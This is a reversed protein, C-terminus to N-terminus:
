SASFIQFWLEPFTSKRVFPSCSVFWTTFRRMGSCVHLAHPVRCHDWCVRPWPVRSPSGLRGGPPRGGTGPLSAAGTRGASAERGDWVAKRGARERSSRPGRRLPKRTQWPCASHPSNSSLAGPGRPCPRATQRTGLGAFPPGIELNKPKNRMKTERSWFCVDLLLGAGRPFVLSLSSHPVGRPPPASTVGVGARGPGVQPSARQEAGHARSM